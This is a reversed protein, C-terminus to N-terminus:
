LILNVANPIINKYIKWVLIIAYRERWRQLSYMSLRCIREWSNLSGRRQIKASFSQVTGLQTVHLLLYWRIHPRM